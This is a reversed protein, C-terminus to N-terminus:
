CARPDRPTISALTPDPDCMRVQGSPSVTVRLCRQSGSSDYTCGKVHTVNVTVTSTPALRGLADFTVISPYATVPNQGMTVLANKTGEKGDRVQLFQPYAQTPDAQVVPANACNGV